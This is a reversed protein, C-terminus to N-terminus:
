LYNYSHLVMTSVEKSNMKITLKRANDKKKAVLHRTPDLLLNVRGLCKRIHELEQKRNEFEATGQELSLSKFLDRRAELEEKEQLLEAQSPTAKPM